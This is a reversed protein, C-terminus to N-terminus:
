AEAQKVKKTRKAAVRVKAAPVSDPIDVFAAPDGPQLITYHSSAIKRTIGDSFQITAKLANVEMVKGVGWEVAGSHNVVTGRKIIM